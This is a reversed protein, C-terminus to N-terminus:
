NKKLLKPLPKSPVRNVSKVRHAHRVNKVHSALRVNKLPLMPLSSRHLPMWLNVCNVFASKGSAVHSAIKVRHALHVNKM